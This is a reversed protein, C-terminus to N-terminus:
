KKVTVKVETTQTIIEASDIENEDFCIYQPYFTFYESKAMEKVEEFFEEDRGVVGVFGNFDSVKRYGSGDYWFPVNGFAAEETINPAVPIQEEDEDDGPVVALHYNSEGEMDETFTFRDSERVAMLRGDIVQLVVPKMEDIMRDLIDETTCNEDDLSSKTHSEQYFLGLNSEAEVYIMSFNYLTETTKKSM